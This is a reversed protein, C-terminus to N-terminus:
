IHPLHLALTFSLQLGEGAIEDRKEHSQNFALLRVLSRPEGVQQSLVDQSRYAM